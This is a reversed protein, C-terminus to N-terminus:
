FKKEKKKKAAGSVHSTGLGPILGLALTTVTSSGEGVSGRPFQLEQKLLNKLLNDLAQQSFKNQKQM